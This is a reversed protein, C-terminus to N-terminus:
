ENQEGRRKNKEKGVEDRISELMKILEKATLDKKDQATVKKTLEVLLSQVKEPGSINKLELNVQASATQVVVTGYNLLTQWFGKKRFSIDQIKEYTTESVRRDFFGKQDFDVIRQNTILFGDFSWVFLKRIGYFVGSLLLVFFILVGWWGQRFLLFLLFFPTVILVITIVMSVTYCYAYQRIIKIVEEGANLNRSFYNNFMMNLKM